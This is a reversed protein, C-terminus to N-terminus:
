WRLDDQDPPQEGVVAIGERALLRRKWSLGGSFGGLKGGAALVRHCPILLPIPNAGCAGGVARIATPRSIMRALEGYSKTQGFGIARMAQWVSQQFPTGCQLDLPPLEGVQGSALAAHVAAETLAHWRRLASPPETNAVDDPSSTADEPFRLGCLGKVSYLGLFRGDRTQITLKWSIAAPSM